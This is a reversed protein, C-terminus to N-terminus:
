DFVFTLISYKQLIIIKTQLYKYVYEFLKGLFWLIQKNVHTRISSRPPFSPFTSSLFEEYRQDKDPPSMLVIVESDSSQIVSSSAQHLYWWLQQQQQQHHHHQQHHLHLHSAGQLCGAPQPESWKMEAQRVCTQDVKGHSQLSWGKILRQASLPAFRWTLLFWRLPPGSCAKGGFYFRLFKVGSANERNKQRVCCVSVRACQEPRLHVGVHKYVNWSDLWYRSCTPTRYQAEYPSTNLLQWQLWVCEFQGLFAFFFDLMQAGWFWATTRKNQFGSRIYHTNDVGTTKVATVFALTREATGVCVDLRTVSWSVM